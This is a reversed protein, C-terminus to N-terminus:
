EIRIPLLVFAAPEEAQHVAIAHAIAEAHEDAPTWTWTGPAGNERAGPCSSGIGAATGRADVYFGRSIGVYMATVEVSSGDALTRVESTLTIERNFKDVQDLIGVVNQFRQSLSLETEDGDPLSQSLPRVRERIPEPLRPLLSRVRGELRAVTEVLADEAVKLRADEAAKEAAAHDAESISTEAEATRARLQEVDDRVLEIRDELVERGIAWDRKEKSIVGQLEIWRALADRAADTADSVLERGNASLGGVAVLSAAAVLLRGRRAPGRGRGERTEEM